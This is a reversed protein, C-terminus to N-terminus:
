AVTFGGVLTDELLDDNIVTVDYAGTDVQEPVYVSFRLFDQREIVRVFAGDLESSFATAVTITGGAGSVSSLIRRTEKNSSHTEPGVVQLYMGELLNSPITDTVGARFELTTSTPQGALTSDFMVNQIEDIIEVQPNDGLSTVRIIAGDLEETFATEVVINGNDGYVVSEIRREEEFAGHTSPAIVSLYMGERVTVPIDNGVGTNFRLTTSAADGVFPSLFVPASRAGVVTLASGFANTITVNAGSKLNIGEAILDTLISGRVGTKTTIDYVYQGLQQFTSPNLFGPTASPISYLNRIHPSQLSALTSYGVDVNTSADVLDLMIGKAIAQEGPKGLRAEQDPDVFFDFFNVFSFTIGRMYIFNPQHTAQPLFDTGGINIELFGNQEFTLMNALLIHKITAYLFITFDQDDTMVQLLYSVSLGSGRHELYRNVETDFLRSPEGLIDGSLSDDTASAGSTFFMEEMGHAALGETDYGTSLINGLVTHSEQEGRLLIAICPFKAEERPYNMVVDIPTAVLLDKYSQVFNQPATAFLQDIRWQERKLEALGKIIVDQIVIEPVIAM